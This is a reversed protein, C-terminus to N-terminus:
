DIGTSLDDKIQNYQLRFIEKQKEIERRLEEETPLYPLYKTAFLRKNDNLISYKAIDRSTETCLIIGITPNDGESRKFEDFMRVYMDMQGVDQHSIQETKLDILVFCKLIYNYFVLDIYYDGTDTHIRQQRAVFAFGRGLEMLFYQLHSVISSELAKETYSYNQQIGLFETVLPNKLIELSDRELDAGKELMEQHVTEKSQESHSLLLRQYYQTAINRSLLRVSWNEREAEQLYWNRAEPNDVRLVARIHSWTLNQVRTHLIKEDPFLTYLQRFYSLNRLSFGKGFQRTLAASALQLIQKGYEARTNGGQEEEVIRKGLYWYTQIMFMNVSKGVQQRGNKVIECIEHQFQSVTLDTQNFPVNPSNEM